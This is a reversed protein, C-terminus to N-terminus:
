LRGLRKEFWHDPYPDDNFPPVERYGNKRYLAQAETLSRNTDLRLRTMGMERAADELAALIRGGIGRGRASPAVWLRKVEGIFPGGSKLGGCGVPEGLARAILFVGAPPAFAGADAPAARSADYGCEFRENLLTFYQELCWRAAPSDSPEPGIVVDWAPPPGENGAM